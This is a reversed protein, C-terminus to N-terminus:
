EPIQADCRLQALKSMLEDDKLLSSADVGRLSALLRLLDEPGIHAFMVVYEVDSSTTEGFTLANDLVYDPMFPKWTEARRFVAVPPSLGAIGEDVVIREQPFYEPGVRVEEAGVPQPYPIKLLSHRGIRPDYGLRMEVHNEFRGGIEPDVAPRDPRAGGNADTVPFVLQRCCPENALCREVLYCHELMKVSTVLALPKAGGAEGVQLEDIVQELGKKQVVAKGLAPVNTYRFHYPQGAYQVGRTRGLQPMPMALLEPQPWDEIGDFYLTLSYANGAAILQDIASELPLSDPRDRLARRLQDPCPALLLAVPERGSAEAKAGEMPYCGADVLRKSDGPKEDARGTGDEGEIWHNTLRYTTRTIQTAVNPLANVANAAALVYRFDHDVMEVPVGDYFSGDVVFGLDHLTQVASEVTFSPETSVEKRETTVPEQSSAVDGSEIMGKGCGWVFTDAVRLKQKILRYASMDKGAGDNSNPSPISDSPSDACAGMALLSILLQGCLWHRFIRM